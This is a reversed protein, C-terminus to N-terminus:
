AQIELIFFNTDYAAGDKTVIVDYTISCLPANEDARVQIVREVPDNGTPIEIPRGVRGLVIYSNAENLTLDGCASGVEAAEVRYVFSGTRDGQVNNRIGIGLNYTKEKEIQAVNDALYIVTKTGQDNFLNNIQAKLNDNILDVADTGGTFINRVLLLGLILFTMAIVIVVVTTISMEFAGKKSHRKM